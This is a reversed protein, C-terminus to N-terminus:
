SCYKKVAERINWHISKKGVMKTTIVLLRYLVAQMISDKKLLTLLLPIFSIITRSELSFLFFSLFLSFIRM